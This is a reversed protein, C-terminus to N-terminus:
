RSEAAVGMSPLSNKLAHLPLLFNHRELHASPSLESFKHRLCPLSKSEEKDALSSPIKQGMIGLLDCLLVLDTDLYGDLMPYACLFAACIGHSRCM